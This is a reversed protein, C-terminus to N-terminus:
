QLKTFDCVGSTNQVPVNTPPTAWAVNTFDFFETMM